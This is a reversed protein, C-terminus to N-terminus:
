SDVVIREWTDISKIKASLSRFTGYGPMITRLLTQKAALYLSVDQSNKAPKRLRFHAWHSVNRALTESLEERLSELRAMEHMAAKYDEYQQRILTEITRLFDKDDEVQWDENPGYRAQEQEETQENPFISLGELM